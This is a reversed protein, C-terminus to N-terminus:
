DEEMDDMEDIDEDEYRRDVGSRREGLRRELREELEWRARRGAAPAEETLGALEMRAEELVRRVEERFEILLERGVQIADDTLEDPSNVAEEALHATATLARRAEDASHRLQDRYPRIERLLRERASRPSPRLLIAAAVGLLTGVGLAALFDTSDNSSM